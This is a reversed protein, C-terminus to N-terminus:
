HSINIPYDYKPNDFALHIFAEYQYNTGKDIIYDWVEQLTGNEKNIPLGHKHILPLNGNTEISFARFNGYKIKM